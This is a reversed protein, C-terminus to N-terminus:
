PATTLRCGSEPIRWSTVAIISGPRALVRLAIDLGRQAGPALSGGRIDATLRDVIATYRSAPL